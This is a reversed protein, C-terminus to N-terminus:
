IKKEVTWAEPKDAFLVKTQQWTEKFLESQRYAQLAEESIWHSCTFCIRSDHRDQWLELHECGEFARIAAERSAFLELFHSLSEEQFTMKVIRIIM